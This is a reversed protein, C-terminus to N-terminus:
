SGDRASQEVDRGFADRQRTQRLEYKQVTRKRLSGRLWRLGLWGGGGVLLLISIGVILNGAWARGGLVASIAQALGVCLLVAGCVLVTSGVILGVVAVAALLGARRLSLKLRDLRASVYYAVYERLEALRHLAERLAQPPPLDGADSREDPPSEATPPSAPDRAM